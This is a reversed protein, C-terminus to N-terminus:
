RLLEVKVCLTFKSEFTLPVQALGSCKMSSDRLVLSQTEFFDVIGISTL